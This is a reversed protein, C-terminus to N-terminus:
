QKEHNWTSKEHYKMTGPQNKMTKITGPQNKMTGPQNEHKKELIYRGLSYGPGVIWDLDAARLAAYSRTVCFAINLLIVIVLLVDNYSILNSVLCDNAQELIKTNININTTTTTPCLCHHQNVILLLWQNYMILDTVLYANSQGISERKWM